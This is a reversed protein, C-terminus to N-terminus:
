TPEARIEVGDRHRDGDDHRMWIVLGDATPSNQATQREHADHM